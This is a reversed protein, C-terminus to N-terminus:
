TWLGSLRLAMAALWAVVVLALTPRSWGSEGGTVAWLGLALCGLYGDAAAAGHQTWPAREFLMGVAAIGWLVRLAHKPALGIAAKM